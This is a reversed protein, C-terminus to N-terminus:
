ERVVESQPLAVDPLSMSLDVPMDRVKLPIWEAEHHFADVSSVLGLADLTFQGQPGGIIFCPVEGDFAVDPGAQKLFLVYGRGEQLHPEDDIRFLGESTQGGTRRM